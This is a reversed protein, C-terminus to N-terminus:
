FTEIIVNENNLYIDTIINKSISNNPVYIKLVDNGLNVLFGNGSFNTINQANIYLESPKINTNYITESLSEIVNSYAFLYKPLYGCLNYSGKFVGSFSIVKTNERFLNEPIEGSINSKSFVFRFNTVEKCNAFLNEPIKGSLGTALNFANAMTVVKSAYKFLNSPIEGTIGPCNYFLLRFSEVTAFSNKSPLPINGTLNSCNAFDYHKAGIVGWQVLKTIKDKSDNIYNFSFSECIGNIKVTYTGGKTYTHKRNEDNYNKINVITGDGFDVTFDYNFNTEIEGRESDALQKEYIPLVITDNDNVTWETIFTKLYENEILDDNKIYDNGQTSIIEKLEELQEEETKQAIETQKKANSAQNIVGNSGILM